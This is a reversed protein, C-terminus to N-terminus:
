SPCKVNQFFDEATPMPEPDSGILKNLKRYDVCVRNSGDPKKVIVVPSAYASKSGRIIGKDLMDKIDQRLEQNTHYPLRYPKSYILQESTLKVENQIVNTSGPDQTFRHEFEKVFNRTEDQQKITLNKDLKLARKM